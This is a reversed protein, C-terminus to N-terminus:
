KNEVTRIWRMVMASEHASDVPCFVRAIKQERVILTLPKISANRPHDMQRSGVVRETRTM